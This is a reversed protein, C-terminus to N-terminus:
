KNGRAGSVDDNGATAGSKKVIRQIKPDLWSGDIHFEQTAAEMLPKRLVVQALFSGLGIAPNIAAAILSATGANIEPVVVVQIDQTERFLDAQGEMLVAANVGKMQLNDSLAIGQDIKIDGRFYDFAFGESFVDRFDLALRRPLSQLSLVGLLKAIGPDAKLFQGNEVNVKFAGSLSAYDLSLPSGLWAVQGEMQGKGRRVIDKMGFRALLDGANLIDLRFNMVTRRAERRKGDAAAGDGSQARVDAWNGTAKFVAEPSTVDFRNLRWERTASGAARDSALRNVADVELRGLKKGRLELENVVVDLAPISEPQEDLLSEVDTASSQALTLRSLRAFLRGAGAGAGTSQRYEAYGALEQADLNVRWTRGERTAGAVLAHLKRGAATFNGARLAIQTPWYASDVEGSLASGASGADPAGVQKLLREWEDVDLDAMHINALVGQAPLPASEGDALGIAIAGRLVRPAAGSVDRVYQVSGVRGLDLVLQDIQRTPAASVSGPQPDRVLASEIRLPMATQENKGLPAPLDLALGVLNSTLAFEPVGARLGVTAAYAASGSSKQALRSVAGFERAQRLAEASAVGMLRFSMGLGTRPAGAVSASAPVSGGDIRVDGGLLRGQLATVSFGTETFGISGRARTLRPVEPALQVDNGTLAVSGQVTTHEPLELPVQLKLRLDASGSTTAHALMQDTMQALPSGNVVGLLDALPGRAELSVALTSAHMMNAIEADANSLQVANASALSARAGKVRLAVRDIELIGSLSALAPWPKEGAAQLSGPVYTLAADAIQATILFEGQRPDAYPMDWLDGRVKFRVQKGQGAQVADRVYNRAQPEVVLPLYRYVRAGNARSLTGQMDLVGPFQSKSRSRAPDSTQWQLQLEGDADANSFKLRGLKVQIKEGDLRWSLDTSLQRFPVVPDDFVGPVDIAGDAMELTAKGGTESLSFDVKAGRLGPTGISQSSGPPAGSTDPIARLSLQRVQGDAQYRIPANAPQQWAVKIRQVIGGPRHRELARHLEDGLPLRGAIQALAALDLRDAVLEGAAVQTGSAQQQQLTFNGGPWRIGDATDFALDRTAFALKGPEFKGSLRGALSALQLPSLGPGVRVVVDALAVDATAGTVRGRQIDIWARVAGRAHEVDIGPDAYQKFQAVDIRSFDAYVQGEWDQWRGNDISLFPQEFRAMTTFRDGWDAPPTADVRFEHLRSRNRLVVNVAHLSLPPVARMEDTWVVAGDRIVFEPQSFIRDLLVADPEGAGSSVDIGALWIHGDPDRRVNLVPSDLLVQDFKLKLLSRPSLSVLIRPLRLVERGQADLLRTNDLEFAPLLNTSHASISDVRVTLGTVRSAAAELQPRLEGIRPVIVLHLTGWAAGFLLWASLLLVLTWRTLFAFSKLLRSPTPTTTLENM